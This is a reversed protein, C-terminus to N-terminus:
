LKFLIQFWSVTLYSRNTKADSQQVIAITILHSLLKNRM